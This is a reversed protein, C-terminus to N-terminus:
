DLAEMNKAVPGDTEAASAWAASGKGELVVAALQPPKPKGDTLRKAEQHKGVGLTGL